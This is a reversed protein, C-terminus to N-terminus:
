TYASLEIPVKMIEFEHLYEMLNSVDYICYGKDRVEMFTAHPCLRIARRLGLHLTPKNVYKDM